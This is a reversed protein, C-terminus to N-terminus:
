YGKVGAVMKAQKWNNLLKTHRIGGVSQIAKGMRSLKASFM